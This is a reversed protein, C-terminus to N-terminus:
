HNTRADVYEELIHWALFAGEAPLCEMDFFPVGSIHFVGHIWKIDLDNRSSRSSIMFDKSDLTESRMWRTPSINCQIAFIVTGSM